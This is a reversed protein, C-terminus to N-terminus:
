LTAGKSAPRPRSDVADVVQEIIKLYLEFLSVPSVERRTKRREKLEYITLFAQADFGVHQALARLADLKRAPVDPQYLRLAARFLVLFTSLSSTLLEAVLRSKGRTLLYRERLQLLRAKLDRELELRLHEPKVTIDALLDEGFLIKRSQQMDCLEIAFVDASAKLQQPTFLLPPRNGAKAWAVAPKSLADLEALGLRDAVILINYDSKGEIHDGTAASGYLVVSRLGAPMAQKLQKVLEEPKM